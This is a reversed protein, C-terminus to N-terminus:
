EKRLAGKNRNWGDYVACLEFRFVGDRKRQSQMVRYLM